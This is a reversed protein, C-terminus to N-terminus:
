EERRVRLADGFVERPAADPASMGAHDVAVRELDALPAYPDDPDISGLSM